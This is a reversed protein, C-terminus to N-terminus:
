TGRCSISYLPLLSVEIQVDAYPGWLGKRVRRRATKTAWPGQWGGKLRAKIPAGLVDPAVVNLIADVKENHPLGNRIGIAQVQYDARVTTGGVSVYCSPPVDAPLKLSFPLRLSHTGAM